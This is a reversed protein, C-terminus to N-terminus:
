RKAIVWGSRQPYGLHCNYHVQSYAEFPSPCSSHMRNNWLHSVIELRQVFSQPNHTHQAEVGDALRLIKMEFFFVCYFSGLYSVDEEGGAETVEAVIINDEIVAPRASAGRVAGEEGVGRRKRVAHLIDAVCQM